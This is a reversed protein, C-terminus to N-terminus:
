FKILADVRVYNWANVDAIGSGRTAQGGYLNTLNWDVRGSVGLIFFDTVNYNIGFGFGQSNLRADMVDSNSLNPDISAIGVQRYDGYASIDGAKKNDGIKLGVLWAMKDKDSPQALNKFAIVNGRSDTVVQSYLGAFPFTTPNTGDRQTLVLTGTSLSTGSFLTATTARQGATGLLSFRAGGDFNYAFDWYFRVPINAVKVTIDGPALVIFLDREEGTGDLFQLFDTKAPATFGGGNVSSFNGAPGNAVTDHGFGAANAIFLSPGFTIAFWDTRYRALLQEEFLYSDNKLNSSFNYENNDYFIFQGAILSLEFASPHRAPPPPPAKGEKSYSVPEGASNWGFLKDFDIREVLGQPYINPDYFLDTTYFPNDQKGAIIALGPYGNWGLFAKNIYIGYNQFGGTFTQNATDSFNNTTLSFGGFFGNDFKIEANLRLRFRWRSRQAVHNRGNPSGTLTPTPNRLSPSPTPTPAAPAASPEQTQEEDWQYRLRLDGSLKLEKIWPALKLPSSPPQVLAPNKSVESEIKDADKQTLIGKRVLADILAQDDAFAASTTLAVLGALVLTYKDKRIM